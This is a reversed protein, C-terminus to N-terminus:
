FICTCRRCEAAGAAELDTKPFVTVADSRNCRPCRRDLAEVLTRLAALEQGFNPGAYQLGTRVFQLAFLSTVHPLTEDIKAILAKAAAHLERLRPEEDSMSTMM